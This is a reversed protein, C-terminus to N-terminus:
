PVASQGNRVQKYGKDTAKLEGAEVMRKLSMFVMNALPTRKTWKGSARILKSLDAGEFEKEPDDGAFEKIAEKVLEKGTPGDVEHTRKSEITSFGEIDLADLGAESFQQVTDAAKLAMRAKASKRDCDAIFNILRNKVAQITDKESM